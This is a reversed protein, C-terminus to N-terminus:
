LKSKIKPYDLKKGHPETDIVMIHDYYYYYNDPHVDHYNNNYLISDWYRKNSISGRLKEIHQAVVICIPLHAYDCNSRYVYPMYAYKTPTRIKNNAKGNLLEAFRIRGANRMETRFMGVGGIKFVFEPFLNHGLIRTKGFFHFGEKHLIDIGKQIDSGKVYIIELGKIVNESLFIKDLKEKLEKPVEKTKLYVCVEPALGEQAPKVQYVFISLFILLISRFNLM